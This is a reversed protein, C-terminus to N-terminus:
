PTAALVKACYDFFHCGAKTHADRVNQINFFARRPVVFDTM